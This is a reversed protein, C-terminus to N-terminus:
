DDRLSRGTLWLFVDELTAEQRITPKRFGTALLEAILERPTGIRIIKGRDM